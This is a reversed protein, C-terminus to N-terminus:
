DKVVKCSVSGQYTIVVDAKYRSRGQRVAKAETRSITWSLMRM